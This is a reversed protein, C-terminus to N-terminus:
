RFILKIIFIFYVVDLRLPSLSSRCAGEGPMSFLFTSGTVLLPFLLPPLGSAEQDLGTAGALRVAKLLMEVLAFPCFFQLIIVVDDYFSIILLPCAALLIDSFVEAAVAGLTELFVPDVIEAPDDLTSPLCCSSSVFVVAARGYVLLLSM